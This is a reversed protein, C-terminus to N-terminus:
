PEEGEPIATFRPGAKRFDTNIDTDELWVPVLNVDNEEAYDEAREIVDLGEMDFQEIVELAQFFAGRAYGREVDSDFENRRLRSEWDIVSHAFMWCLRDLDVDATESM